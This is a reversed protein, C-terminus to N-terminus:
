HLVAFPDIATGEWWHKDATLVFIAFHLHPTDKPANGTTGVYGIVQGREVKAGERLGEAYGDLHAYYYAFTSTPDFQYITLGGAKSTFLRAITGAEVATVPTNRPALLDMAEHPRSGGRLEAFNSRLTSRDVNRLPVDLHRARLAAVADDPDMVTGPTSAEPDPTSAPAVDPVAPRVAVAGPATAETRATAAPPTSPTAITAPRGAAQVSAFPEPSSARFLATLVAMVAVGAFFGCTAAFALAAHHRKPASM